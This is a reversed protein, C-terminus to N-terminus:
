LMSREKATLGGWIGDLGADAMAYGLCEERVLCRSCVAKAAQATRDSKAFWGLKPYERCLADARWAPGRMLDLLEEVSSRHDGVSVLGDRVGSEVVVSM